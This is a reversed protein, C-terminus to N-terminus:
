RRYNPSIQEM